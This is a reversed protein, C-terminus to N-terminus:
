HMVNTLSLQRGTEEYRGPEMWNQYTTLRLFGPLLLPQNQDIGKYPSMTEYISGPRCYTGESLAPHVVEKADLLFPDQSFFSIDVVNRDAEIVTKVTEFGM